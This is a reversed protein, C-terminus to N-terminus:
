AAEAADSPASRQAAIDAFSLDTGALTAAKGTAAQWRRIAVDVYAPDLEIGYSTRGCQEAAMITTGSGMFPDLVVSGRKSLDLLADRVLEIPKPTPHHALAKNASSGRRNAGPYTWVNTRDRGHKGLEVNNVALTKGQCFVVILEHASRYPSGMGGNGKNWVVTNIHRLGATRGAAVIIDDSRWDICSFFAGGEKLYAAGLAHFTNCFAAFQEPSMEGAGQKFNAHKTKGLGSVFGEIPINWPCDTFIVDALQGDLVIVYSQPDTADGCLLRHKGIIWLDGPISVPVAPPEPVDEQAVEAENGILPSMIIDLEPLSFGTTEIEFGLEEFEILLPGLADLDWDGTEGIRNITVHLLAREDEDLHDIVACWVEEAGLSKLAEVVVHGNIIEGSQNILIPACQKLTTISKAVRKIQPKESRRARKKMGKLSSIQRLELKMACLPGDPVSAAMASLSVKHEFHKKASRTKAQLAKKSPFELQISM